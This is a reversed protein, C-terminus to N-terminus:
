RDWCQICRGRLMPKGSEGCQSCKHAHQENFKKLTELVRDKGSDGSYWWEIDTWVEAIDKGLANVRAILALIERTKAAAFTAPEGLEDLAKAMEEITGIHEQILEGYEAHRGLYDFSDGSM